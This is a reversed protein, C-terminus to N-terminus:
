LWTEVIQPEDQESREVRVPLGQNFNMADHEIWKRVVSLHTSVKHHETPEDNLFRRAVFQGPHDAPSEYVTWLALKTM